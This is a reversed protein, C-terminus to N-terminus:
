PAGHVLAVDYTTGPGHCTACAEVGSPTTNLQAHAAVYPADHCTTCVTTTPAVLVTATPTWFPDDCYANGDAGPAESCSWRQTTVPLYASSSALPLTWNKSTHCAACDGLGRPYRVASYDIPVGAPNAVTPAGDGIAFGQSLQNGAHIKHVFSRLDLSGAVVDTTSEFRAIRGDALTPNHCFACYNPNKRSGGHHNLDYHCGDCKARDVIQRRAHATADTVAFALIPNDTAYRPDTPTPQLYGELGVEFSGTASPPIATPFTYSYIGQSADVAALTGVASAGQIRAQWETSFDTNPGAITATIRTLPQALLDRPAGNVKATFTLVPIQGPATNTITNITLAVTPANAALTGTYHKDAVGAIGGSAPHCVACMANDPQTGGSHLVKGAPVPNAFVITDHCSLCATKAPVNKWRDGQAGAHCAECRAINQPFHVTSFDAVSQAYGIIQYPTGAIVSPLNAGRHIRHIMVPFDVTNGTDPDSSQPQHCLICQAPKTWRGGHGALTAHCANCTGETVIERAAVAGGDPRASLLDRAITQTTGITRVANAAVTQTLTPTLGTLPAAVDYTYTGQTVDIVHLTGSSETTAQTASANTIPSTQVKTTYATYSGPSGDSNQALQALVFSLAVKGTTLRGGVDLGTGGGDTLTFSVTAVSNAFTLGTIKLDVGPGTLWPAPGAPDGKAGADGNV